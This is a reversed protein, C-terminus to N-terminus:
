TRLQRSWLRWHSPSRAGDGADAEIYSPFPIPPVAHGCKGATQFFCKVTRERIRGIAIVLQRRQLMKQQCQDVVLVSGRHNARAVDVDLHQALVDRAVNIVIELADEDRRALVGLRRGPELAHNLARYNVDLRGAAVLHGAGVHQDRDKGLAFAMGRIEELFQLHRAVVREIVDAVTDGLAGAVGLRARHASRVLFLALRRDFAAALCELGIADIEIFLRALAPDVRQDAAVAFDFARDLNQAATLLVVGQQHAIGADAFGRDRFTQRAHDDVALHRLDQLARRNEREVHARQQGARAIAAIELLADLRDDLLKFLVVARDQEDVFDV